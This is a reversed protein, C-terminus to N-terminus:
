NGGEGTRRPGGFHARLTLSPVPPLWLLPETSPIGVFPGGSGGNGVKAVRPAQDGLSLNTVSLGAEMESGFPGRFRQSIGLDVRLSPKGRASLEPGLIGRNPVSLPPATTVVGVLPSYPLASAAEVSGSLITRRVLPMLLTARATHRRDSIWPVWGDGWNRQSIMLGYSIIGTLQRASDGWSMETELGAVRARGIRYPASRDALTLDYRYDVLGDGNSAFLAGRLRREGQQLRVEASWHTMRTAPIGDSGAALWVDNYAIKPETSADSVLHLLSGDRGVGLAVWGSAGLLRSVSVQGQLLHAGAAADVRLGARAHWGGIDQQLMLFGAQEGVSQTTFVQPLPSIVDPALSDRFLRMGVSVGFRIRPTGPDGGAAVEVGAESRAMRNQVDVHGGREGVQTVRRADEHHASYSGYAQVAFSSGRVLNTRLGVLESGWRLRQDPSGDDTWDGLHDGTALVTLTVPGAVRKPAGALSLYLDHLGFPTHSLSTIGDALTGAASRFAATGPIIGGGWDLAGSVAGFGIQLTAATRAAGSRGAIEVRGSSGRTLQDALPPIALTVGDTAISPFATFMRGAHYLNVVDFGNVSFSTEDADLGRILPRGSVISAFSVSPLIRLVRGADPEVVVPLTQMALSSVRRIGAENREVVAILDSIRPVLPLITVTLQGPPAATLVITDPLAGIFVTVLTDPVVGLHLRFRGSQGSIASSGSRLLRVMAGSVPANGSRWRVTGELDHAQSAAIEPVVMILMALLLARSQGKM